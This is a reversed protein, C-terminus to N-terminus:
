ADVSTVRIERVNGGEHKILKATAKAVAEASLAAETRAQEVGVIVAEAPPVDRDAVM